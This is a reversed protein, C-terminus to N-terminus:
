YYDRSVFVPRQNTLIPSQNTLIPRQNTVKAAYHQATALAVNPDFPAQAGNPYTVLQASRKSFNLASSKFSVFYSSSKGMSPLPLLLLLCWWTRPTPTTPTLLPELM